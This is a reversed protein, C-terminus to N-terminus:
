DTQDVFSQFLVGSNADNSFDGCASVGLQQALAATWAAATTCGAPGCSAPQLCAPLNAPAGPLTLLRPTALCSAKGTSDWKAEPIYGAGPSGVGPTDVWYIPIGRMTFPHVGDYRATIMRLAATTAAPTGDLEYFSTKALADTACALNFFSNGSALPEGSVQNYLPGPLAVVLDADPEPTSTANEDLQCSQDQSIASFGLAGLVELSTQVDCTSHGRYEIRYGEVPPYGTAANQPEFSTVNAITLEVPALNDGRIQFKSHELAVGECVTEGNKTGVLKKDIADFTLDAGDPCGGAHLTGPLLQIGDPNCAGGAGLGNVPFV